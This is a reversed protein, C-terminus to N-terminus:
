IQHVHGLTFLSHIRTYVKTLITRWMLRCLFGQSAGKCLSISFMVRHSCMSVWMKIAFSCVIALTHFDGVSIKSYILFRTCPMSMLSFSVGIRLSVCMLNKHVQCGQSSWNGDDCSVARKKSNYYLCVQAEPAGGVEKRMRTKDWKGMRAKGM